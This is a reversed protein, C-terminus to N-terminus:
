GNTANRKQEKLYIICEAMRKEQPNLSNIDPQRWNDEVFVKIKPRLIKAEEFDMKIRTSEIAEQILKLVWTTVNKSLIEFAAQFPNITDILDISL